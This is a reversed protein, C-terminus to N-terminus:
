NDNKREGVLFTITSKHENVEKKWEIDPNEDALQEFYQDNNIGDFIHNYVIFYRKAHVKDWIHKRVRLPAENFSAMAIFLDVDFYEIQQLDYSNYFEINSIDKMTNSLYFEQLLMLEPFDYLHYDGKFGYKHLIYCTAGYGGGFEFISETDKFQNYFLSEGSLKMLRMLQYEQHTFNGSKVNHTSTLLPNGFEPDLIFGGKGDNMEKYEEKVYPANGVFMTAQITSWRLFKNPDDGLAIHNHLARRNRLWSDDANNNEKEDFALQPEIEAMRSIFQQKNMVSM